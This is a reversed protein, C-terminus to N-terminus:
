RQRLAAVFSAEVRRGLRAAAIRVSVLQPLRDRERWNSTWEPPRNDGSAGFYSLEFEALGRVALTERMSERRPPFDAPSRYVKTWVGLAGERAASFPAIETLILGAEQTEGESSAVFACANPEGIFAVAGGGAATKVSAPFAREFLESIARAEGEVEGLAEYNRGAEWARRGLHLGGVISATIAALLSAALLLELLTFGAAARARM